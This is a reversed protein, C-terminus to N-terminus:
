GKAWTHLESVSSGGHSGPRHETGVGEEGQHSEGDEAVGGM